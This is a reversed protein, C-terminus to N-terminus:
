AAEQISTYEDFVFKGTEDFKLQPLHSRAIVFHALAEEATPQVDSNNKQSSKRIQYREYTYAARRIIQEDIWARHENDFIIAGGQVDTARSFVRTAQEMFGLESTLFALLRLNIPDKGYTKLNICYVPRANDHHLSIKTHARVQIACVATKMNEFTIKEHFIVRGASVWSETHFSIEEEYLNRPPTCPVNSVFNIVTLPFREAAERPTIKFQADIEQKIEPLFWASAGFYNKLRADHPPHSVKKEVFPQPIYSLWTGTTNKFHIERESFRSM